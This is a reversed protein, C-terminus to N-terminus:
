ENEIVWNSGDSIVKCRDWQSSLTKSSAGNITQGSQPAITVTKDTGVAVAIILFARGARGVATPLTITRSAATADVLIVHDDDTVTYNASVGKVPYTVEETVLELVGSRIWKRIKDMKSSSLSEPIKTPSNTIYLYDDETKIRVVTGSSVTRVKM